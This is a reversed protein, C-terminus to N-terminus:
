GRITESGGSRAPLRFSGALGAPEKGIPVLDLHRAAAAAITDANAPKGVLEQEAATARMAKSTAGTVAVRASSITGGDVKIVAAVGVVAYGSAPHAHKEYAAGAGNLAPVSISTLLEDPELSTTLLDVFLDDTSIERSGNSGTAAVTAGL